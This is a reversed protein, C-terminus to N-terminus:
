QKEYLVPFLISLFNTIFAYIFKVQQGKLFKPNSFQIKFM